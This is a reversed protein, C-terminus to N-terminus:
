GNESMLRVLCDDVCHLLQQLLKKVFELWADWRIKVVKGDVRCPTIQGSGSKMQATAPPSAM